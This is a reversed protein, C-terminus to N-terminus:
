RPYRFRFYMERVGQPARYHYESILQLPRDTVPATFLRPATPDGGLRLATTVFLEDIFGARAVGANLRPGGECLVRRVHKGTLYRMVATLDVEGDPTAPVIEVAVGAARVRDVDAATARPTTIVLRDLDTRRFVIGKGAPASLVRIKVPAGSHLGIGSAEFSSRITQEYAM